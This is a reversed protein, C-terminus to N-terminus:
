FLIYQVSCISFSLSFHHSFSPLGLFHSLLLQTKAMNIMCRQGSSIGKSKFIQNTSVLVNSFFFFLFSYIDIYRKSSNSTYKEKSFNWIQSRFNSIKLVHMYIYTNFCSASRTDLMFILFFTIAESSLVHWRTNAKGSINLM